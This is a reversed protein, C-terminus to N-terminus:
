QWLWIFGHHALPTNAPFCLRQLSGQLFVFGQPCPVYLGAVLPNPTEVVMQSFVTGAKRTGPRLGWVWTCGVIDRQM